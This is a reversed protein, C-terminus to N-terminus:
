KVLVLKQHFIEEGVVVKVFYTGSSLNGLSLSVRNPGELLDLPQRYALSGLQDFVQIQGDMAQPVQIDLQTRFDTPNPFLNGVEIRDTAPLPSLETQAQVTPEGGPRPPACSMTLEFNGANSSFGSVYVYYEQGPVTMFQITSRRISFACSFDDDNGALCTMDGPNCGGTFAFLKTDYGSGPNCTTLRVVSGDGYFRYWLGKASTAATGCYPLVHPQGENTNGALTEGCSILYADTCNDNLPLYPQSTEVHNFSATVNTAYPVNTVILGAELCEEMAIVQTNVPQGWNVGDYSTYAQFIPGTRVIRLWHQGYRSFGQTQNLGGTTTRWDARHQLYDLGTMVQFKKSGPDNSERMTIDAWAKGLGDLNDVHAIIEGDGCITSKMYAYEENLPSYPSHSCDSSTLLFTETDANYDASSGPCDIHDDWTMWGCPLGAITVQRTCFDTGGGQDKVYANVSIVEGVRSCSIVAPVTYANVIGCNDTYGLIIEYPDLALDEEGNFEVTIDQCSTIVPPQNDLITALLVLDVTNNSVDRGTITVMAPTGPGWVIDIQYDGFGDPTVTVQTGPSASATVALPNVILGDCLDFGEAFVQMTHTCVGPDAILNGLNATTGPVTFPNNDVLVNDMVDNVEWIPDVLDQGDPVNVTIPMHPNSQPNCPGTELVTVQYNGAGAHVFLYPSGAATAGLIFNPIPAPPTSGFPGSGIIPAITVNYTTGPCSVGDQISIMFSGNPVYGPSVFPCTPRFGQGTVVFPSDFTSFVPGQSNFCSGSNGAAGDCTELLSWAYRTGPALGTVTFQYTDPGVLVAAPSGNQPYTCITKQYIAQGTFCLGSGSDSAYVEMNWCHNASPSNLSTWQFTATTTTQSVVVMGAPALCNSVAPDNPGDTTFAPGPANYCNGSNGALGDCTEVLSWGYETDPALGTVTYQYTDPGVLVVGPTNTCATGSFVSQGAFCFAAGGDWAFVEINWCHNASPVNLSTWQFTVTTETTSVAVLGAPAICPAVAPENPGLTILAPGTAINCQASNGQSGDCTELLSWSYKTDPQLGTVTYQYTDPGVLVAAPVGNQPYTCATEAFISQGAFCLGGFAYVEINWCHDVSPPNLSTWQFTATTETTNVVVLGAPAACQGSLTAHSFAWILLLSFLSFPLRRSM